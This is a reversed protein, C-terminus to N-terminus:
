INIFGFDMVDPDFEFTKNKNLSNIISMDEESIAFDFIDANEVIRHKKVSKPIITVGNQLDWRLVIQAATKGYKEGINVLVEPSENFHGHFLPGWATVIIGKENAYHRLTKQTNFPHLEVQDVSPIVGFEAILDEIHNPKFNSVGISRIKKQEKLKLFAEWTALRGDRNLGPWHVLYLDVYDMDLLKLSKNFARITNEYGHDANWLKTTVFIQERSIESQRIARGVGAENEYFAATDILRYGAELAWRISNEIESGEEALYVGLGIKPMKTGDNLTVQDQENSQMIDVEKQKEIVALIELVSVLYLARDSM